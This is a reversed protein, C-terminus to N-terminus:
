GQFGIIPGKGCQLLFFQAICAAYDVYGDVRETLLRRERSRAVLPRLAFDPRRRLVIRFLRGRVQDRTSVPKGFAGHEVLFALAHDPFTSDPKGFLGHEVLFNSRL